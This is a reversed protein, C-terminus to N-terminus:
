AVHFLRSAITLLLFLCHLIGDEPINLRTARIPVWTESFGIAEMMINVSILSSPVVLGGIRTMKIIIITIRELSVDSRVLAVLSLM